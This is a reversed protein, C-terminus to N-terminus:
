FRPDPAAAANRDDNKTDGINTSNNIQIMRALTNTYLANTLRKEIIFNLDLINCPDRMKKGCVPYLAIEMPDIPVGSLMAYQAKIPIGDKEKKILTYIWQENGLTKVTYRMGMNAALIRNNTKIKFMSWETFTYRDMGDLTTVNTPRSGVFRPLPIISKMWTCGSPPACPCEVLDVEKLEICPIVETYDEYNGELQNQRRTQYYLEARANTMHFYILMNPWKFQIFPRGTKEEVDHSFAAIIDRISTRLLLEDAM